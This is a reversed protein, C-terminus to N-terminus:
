RRLLDVQSVLGVLRGSADVVPLRRLHHKRMLEGALRVEATEPVTVAPSTMVERTQRGALPATTKGLEEPTYTRLLEPRTALGRRVFDGGTVMGVVRQEADVVPVARFRRRVLDEVLESLPTDPRVAVVDRTMVDAVPVGRPLGPMATTTQLLVETDEVTILGEAVMEWIHPLIQEVREASDIWVVMTPLRPAVDALSITQVHARAGFSAIAKFASAGAAGEAQLRELIRLYAAKGHEGPAHGVFITVKKAKGTLQMPEHQPESM